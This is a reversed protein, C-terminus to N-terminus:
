LPREVLYAQGRLVNVANYIGEYDLYFMSTHRAIEGATTKQWYDKPCPNLWVYKKTYSNLAKLFAITNLLRKINLTKKAAGADSIIVVYNSSAEKKLVDTLPLSNIQNLEKYISGIENPEILHLIQDLNTIFTKKPLETLISENAGESLLNHFYYKTFSKFRGAEQIAKSFEEIFNHFPAMSGQSDILLLLSTNNRRKAILEAGVATGKKARSSITADVDLEIKPGERIPQRLRRWTQVIERYNLPYQPIFVFSREAITVGAFSIDPLNPYQNTTIITEPADVLDLKQTYKNNGIPSSNEGLLEPSSFTNTSVSLQWNFLTKEEIQKFLASLVDKEQRSKAWLCCCLNFLDTPSSWGFGARLTQWLVVYDDLGLLFGRRRIQEFITWLFTDKEIGEQNQESKDM